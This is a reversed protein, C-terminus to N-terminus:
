FFGRNSLIKIAFRHTSEVSRAPNAPSLRSRFRREIRNCRHGRCDEYSVWNVTTATALNRATDNARGAAESDLGDGDVRIRIPMGHM